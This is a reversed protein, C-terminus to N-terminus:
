NEVTIVSKETHQVSNLLMHIDVFDVILLIKITIKIIIIIKHHTKNM